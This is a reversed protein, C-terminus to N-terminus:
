ISNLNFIFSFLFNSWFFHLFHFLFSDEFATFISARYIKGNPYFSLVNFGNFSFNQFNKFGIDTYRFPAFNICLPNMKYKHKLEYAVYVFENSDKGGSVPVLIDWSGDKSKYKNLLKILKKERDKWNIKSKIEKFSLYM